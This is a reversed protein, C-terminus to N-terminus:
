GRGACGRLEPKAFGGKVAEGAGGDAGHSRVSLRLGGGNEELKEGDKAVYDAWAGVAHDTGGAM